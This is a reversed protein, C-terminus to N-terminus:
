CVGDKDADKIFQQIEEESMVGHKVFVNRLEEVSLSGDNNVDIEHFAQKL